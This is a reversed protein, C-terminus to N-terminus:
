PLKIMHLQTKNYFIYQVTKIPNSFVQSNIEQQFFVVITLTIDCCGANLVTIALPRLFSEPLSANATM